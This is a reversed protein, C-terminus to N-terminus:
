GVATRWSRYEAVTFACILGVGGALTSVVGIAIAALAFAVPHSRRWIWIGALAPRASSSTPPACARGLREFDNYLVNQQSTLGVALAALAMGSNVALDRAKLTDM